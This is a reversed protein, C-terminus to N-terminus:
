PKSRWDLAGRKWAYVYGAVLLLLFFSVLGLGQLGLERFVVSWPYLCAIEVDFLIFLIAVLFFKVSFGEGKYGESPMGSEFADLKMETWQKAGTLRSLVSHATLMGVGILLAVAVLMLIPIAASYM